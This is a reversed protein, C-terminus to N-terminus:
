PKILKGQKLLSLMQTNQKASGVYLKINNATAIKKRYAFSSNYGLSKLADAISGSTGTYKKFYAKNTGSDNKVPKTDPYIIFPCKGWHTWGRGKLATKVVGYEFGKAEIVYGNGIYVGVHGSMFVLVGPIEPITSIKGQIKCKGLMGNASVDQSSNYKPTSTPTDSWLYGKILGVCDHVREGIQSNYKKMRSNQYHGPYQKTKSALLSKTATNGFTGYWYPKGLQAKAYEVLGTNTKAM